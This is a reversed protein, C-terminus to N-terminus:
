PISLIFLLVVQKPKAIVVGFDIKTIPTATTHKQTSRIGTASGVDKIIENM